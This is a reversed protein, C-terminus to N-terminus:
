TSEAALWATPSVSRQALTAPVAKASARRKTVPLTPSTRRSIGPAFSWTRSSRAASCVLSTSACAFSAGHTPARWLCWCRTCTFFARSSSECCSSLASTSTSFATTALAGRKPSLASAALSAPFGSAAACVATARTLRASSALSFATWFPSSASRLPSSSTCLFSCSNCSFSLSACRATVSMCARASASEKSSSIEAFASLMSLSRCSIASASATKAPSSTLRAIGSMSLIPDLMWDFNISAWPNQLLTMAWTARAGLPGISDTLPAASSSCFRTSSLRSRCRCNLKFATPKLRLCTRRSASLATPAASASSCFSTSAVSVSLPASSAESIDASPNLSVKCSTAETSCHACAANTSAFFHMMLADECSRFSGPALWFALGSAPANCALSAATCCSVALSRLADLSASSRKMASRCSCSTDAKSRSACAAVSSATAVLSARVWPAAASATALASPRSAAARSPTAAAALATASFLCVARPTMPWSSWAMSVFSFCAWSRRRVAALETCLRRSSIWASSSRACTECCTCAASASTSFADWASDDRIPLPPMGTSSACLAKTSKSAASDVARLATDSELALRTFTRLSTRRSEPSFESVQAFSRASRCSCTSALPALSFSSWLLTASCFRAM